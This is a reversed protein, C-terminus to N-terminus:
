ADIHVPQSSIFGELNFLFRALSSSVLKAWSDWFIYKSNIMVNDEHLIKFEHFKRWEFNKYWQLRQKRITFDGNETM